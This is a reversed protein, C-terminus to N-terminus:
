RGRLKEMAAVDRAQRRAHRREERANRRLIKQTERDVLAKHEETMENVPRSMFAATEDSTRMRPVHATVISTHQRKASAKVVEWAVGAVADALDDHGGPRHGVMERNNTVRRELQVLENVLIDGADILLRQDYLAERMAVYGDVTIHLSVREVRMGRTNKLQQGFDFSQFSDFSVQAFSFGHETLSDLLKRLLAFDYEKGDREIRLALDYWIIPQGVRMGAFCGMAFGVFDQGTTALDFHIYRPEHPMVRPKYRGLADRECLAQWDLQSHGLLFKESIKGVAANKDLLFSARAQRCQEISEADTIFRDVADTPCGVVNQAFHDPNKKAMKYNQQEPGYPVEIVERGQNVLQKRRDEDEVVESQTGKRPKAFYFIPGVDAGPRTHWNSKSIVISKFGNDEMTPTIRALFDGEYRESSDLVIRVCPEFPRHFRLLRVLLEQYIETAADYVKGQSKKSGEVFDYKNCETLHAVVVNQGILADATTPDPQFRVAASENGPRTLSVFNVGTQNYLRQQARFHESFWPSQRVMNGLPNFLRERAMDSDVGMQVIRLPLNPELDGIAAHPSGYCGIEYLSRYTLLTGLHTKGWGASGRLAIITYGGEVIEVFLDRIKPWVNIPGVFYPNTVWDGPKEMPKDQSKLRSMAAM